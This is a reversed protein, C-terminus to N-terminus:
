MGVKNINLKRVYETFLFKIDEKTVVKEGRSSIIFFKEYDNFDNDTYTFLFTCELVIFIDKVLKIKVFSRGDETTGKEMWTKKYFEGEEPNFSSQCYLRYEPFSLLMDNISNEIVDFM